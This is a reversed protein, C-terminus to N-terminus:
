ISYEKANFLFLLQISVKTSRLKSRGEVNFLFLLQISVILALKLSLQCITNFLFLLQISVDSCLLLGTWWGLNFLFLLQISVYISAQSSTLSVRQILVSATNFSMCNKQELSSRFLQILVSATNFSRLYNLLKIDKHLQILVSATNFCDIQKANATTKWHINAYFLHINRFRSTPFITSARMLLQYFLFNIFLKIHHLKFIFFHWM